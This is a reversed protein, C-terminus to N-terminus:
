ETERHKEAAERPATRLGRLCPAIYVVNKGMKGAVCQQGVVSIWFGVAAM